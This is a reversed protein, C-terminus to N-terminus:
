IAPLILLPRDVSFALKRSVSRHFFEEYWRMRHPAVAVWDAKGKKAEGLITEDVNEGTPFHWRHKVKVLKKDLRVGTNTEHLSWLEGEEKVNVIQLVFGFQESLVKLIERSHNNM